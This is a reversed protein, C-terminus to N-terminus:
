PEYRTLPEAGEVPENLWHLLRRINRGPKPKPQSAELFRDGCLKLHAEADAPAHRGGCTLLQREAKIYDPEGAAEVSRFPGADPVAQSEWENLRYRLGENVEGLESMKQKLYDNRFVRVVGFLIILVGQIGLVLTILVIEGDM